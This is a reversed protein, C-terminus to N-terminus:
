QAITKRAPRIMVRRIYVPSEQETWDSPLKGTSYSQQMINTLLPALDDRYEQLMRAPIDDPGSAKNPKLQRLQKAVGEKEIILDGIDLFPSPGKDPVPLNTDSTFVSSFQANLAAAKSQSTYHMGSSTKLTPIGLTEKRKSKVYSWFKKGDSALSNGVTSNLCEVHAKEVLRQVKNRQVKYKAWDKQDKSAKAKHYLRDRKRMHRVIDRSIWPHSIKGKSLKHPICSEMTDCVTKKFINWNEDLTRLDPSSSFYVDTAEKLLQHAKTPDAKTYNWIMRPRCKRSQPSIDIDFNVILHDSIGPSTHVQSILGENTTPILDLVNNSAPRTIHKQVQALGFENLVEIFCQHAGSTSSSTTSMDEWSIDPFNFDGAIIINPLTHVHKKLIEALSDQLKALQDKVKTYGPPRYYSALYMTGSKAFEVSIWTIKCDTVFEAREVVVIDEKVALFVGGGSANRDNRFVTYNDPFISYTPISSDLKSECGFIIDPQHLEIEAEFKHRKRIGKLGDCNIQMAKLNRSKTRGSPKPKNNEGSNKTPTRPRHQPLWQPGM